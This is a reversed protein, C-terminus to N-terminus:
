NKGLVKVEVSLGNQICYAAWHRGDWIEGNSTIDIVKPVLGKMPNLPSGLNLSNPDINPIVGPRAM